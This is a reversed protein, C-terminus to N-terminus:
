NYRNCLTNILLVFFLKSRLRLNKRIGDYHFCSNIGSKSPPILFIKIRMSTLFLLLRFVRAVWYTKTFYKIIIYNDPTYNLLLYHYHCLLKKFLFLLRYTHSLMCIVKISRLCCRHQM